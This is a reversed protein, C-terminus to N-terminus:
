GKLLSFNYCFVSNEACNYGRHAFSLAKKNFKNACTIFIREKAGSKRFQIYNLCKLFM